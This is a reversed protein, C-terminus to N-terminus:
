GKVGEKDEEVRFSDGYAFTIMATVANDGKMLAKGSEFLERQVTVRRLKLGTIYNM